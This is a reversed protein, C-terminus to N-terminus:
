QMKTTFDAAEYKDDNLLYEAIVDRAVPAANVSTGGQVLMVVVAIKPDDAPALTIVWAFSDYTDKFQNVDSMTVTGGSAEIVAKDVTDNETPYTSPDEKMLQKMEAEVESWSVGPAIASLHSKVYAVEDDPQVYGAVEATGTKGAVEIDLSNFVSSM